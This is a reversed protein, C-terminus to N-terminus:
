GGDSRRLYGGRQGVGKADFLSKACPHMILQHMGISIQLNKPHSIHAIGFGNGLGKLCHGGCGACVRHPLRAGGGTSSSSTLSLLEGM